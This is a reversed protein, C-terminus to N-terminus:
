EFALTIAFLAVIAFLMPHIERYRGAAIALVVYSALGIGIGTSISFTFPMLVITLFAPVAIVSDEFNIERLNRSMAMGVIILAPATAFAPVAGIFPYFFLSLLFFIGVFISTLGTRGGEEVGAASEIYSTTSSTGVFAGIVTGIADARLAKRMANDKANTAVGCPKAVALLTGVSDFLDVFMFSLIVGVLVPSLAGRWDFAFLVPRIDPPAAFISTPPPAAGTIFGAVSTAIIGIIIAGKINRVFLIGTLALGGLGLLTPLAGLSGRTVLTAPNAVVIGMQKAGILALFFGIGVAIALKLPEPIADVIWDRFRTYALIVNLMGEIFVVGLAVQWSLGLAGCLTFAFLANLGMGPAMAVPLNSYLGMVITSLAAAVATAAISAEVPMGANALIQPNVFLIYGMTLFTATAARAETSFSTKHEQLFASLLKM